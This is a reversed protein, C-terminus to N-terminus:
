NAVTPRLPKRYDSIERWATIKEPTLAWFEELRQHFFATDSLLGAVKKAMEGSIKGNDAMYGHLLTLAIAIRDIEAHSPELTNIVYWNGLYISVTEPTSGGPRTEMIEVLFDRLYRDGDHALPSAKAVELMGGEADTLWKFFSGMLNMAETDMEFFDSYLGKESNM